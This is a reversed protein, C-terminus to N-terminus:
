SEQVMGGSRSRRFFPILNQRYQETQYNYFSSQPGPFSPEVLCTIAMRPTYMASVASTATYLETRCLHPQTYSESLSLHGINVAASQHLRDQATGTSPFPYIPISV